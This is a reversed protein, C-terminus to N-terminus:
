RAPISHRYLGWDHLIFGDLQSTWKDMLRISIYLPSILAFNFWCSWHRCRLQDLIIPDTRRGDTQRDTKLYTLLPCIIFSSKIPMQHTQKNNINTVHWHFSKDDDKIWEWNIKRKIRHMIIKEDFGDKSRRIGDVSLCLWTNGGALGSFPQISSITVTGTSPYISISHTFTSCSTQWTWSFLSYRDAIVNENAHIEEEADGEEEEDKHRGWSRAQKSKMESKSCCHKFPEQAKNIVRCLPAASSSSSIPLQTSSIDRTAWLLTFLIHIISLVAHSISITGHSVKRGLSLYFWSCFSVVLSKICYIYIGEDEDELIHQKIRHIFTLLHNNDAMYLIKFFWRFKM